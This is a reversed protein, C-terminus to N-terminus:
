IFKNLFIHSPSHKIPKGAFGALRGRHPITAGVIAPEVIEDLRHYIRGFRGASNRLSVGLSQISNGVYDEFVEHYM